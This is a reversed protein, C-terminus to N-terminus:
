FRRKGHPFINIYGALYLLVYFAIFPSFFPRRLAPIPAFFFLLSSFSPAPKICGAAFFRGDNGRLSIWKSLFPFYLLTTAHVLSRTTGGGNEPIQGTGNKRGAPAAGALPWRAPQTVENSSLLSFRQACFLPASILNKKNAGTTDKPDPVCEFLRRSPAKEQKTSRQSATRLPM